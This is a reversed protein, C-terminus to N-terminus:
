PSARVRRMDRRVVRRSRGRPARTTEPAGCGPWAPERPEGARSRDAPAMSKPRGPAVLGTGVIAEVDSRLRRGTASVGWTVTGVGSPILSIPSDRCGPGAASGRFPAAAPGVPRTRPVAIARAQRIDRHRRHRGKRVGLAGGVAGGAGVIGGLRQPVRVEALRDRRDGAGAGREVVGGRVLARERPGLERDAPVLEVERTIGGPRGREQRARLPAELEHALPAAFQERADAGRADQQDRLPRELRARHEGLEVVLRDRLKRRLVAEPRDVREARGVVVLVPDVLRDAVHVERELRQPRDVDRRVEGRRHRIEGRREHRDAVVSGRALERLVRHAQQGAVVVRLQPEVHSRVERFRLEAGAVVGGRELGDVRHEAVRGIGRAARRLRVVERDRGLDVGHM